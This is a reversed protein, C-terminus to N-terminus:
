VGCVIALRRQKRTHIKEGPGVGMVFVYLFANLVYIIYPM